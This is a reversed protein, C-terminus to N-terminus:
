NENKLGKEYAAKVRLIWKHEDTFYEKAETIMERNKRAENLWETFDELDLANYAEVIKEAFTKGDTNLYKEWFIKKRYNTPNIIKGM